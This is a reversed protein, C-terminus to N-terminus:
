NLSNQRYDFNPWSIFLGYLLKLPRVITGLGVLVVALGVIVGTQGM